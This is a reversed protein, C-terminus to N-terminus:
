EQSMVMMVVNDGDVDKKPVCNCLGLARTDM